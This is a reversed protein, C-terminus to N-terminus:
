KKFRNELIEEKYKQIRDLNDLYLELYGCAPCVAVNVNGIFNKPLVGATKARTVRLLQSNMDKIELNEIM